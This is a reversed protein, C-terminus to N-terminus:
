RLTSFVDDLSQQITPDSEALPALTEPPATAEIPHHEPPTAPLDAPRETTAQQATAAEERHRKGYYLAAGIAIVVAIPIAYYLYKKQEEEM